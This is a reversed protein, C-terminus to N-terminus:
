GPKFYTFLLGAIPRIIKSQGVLEVQSGVFSPLSRNENKKWTLM